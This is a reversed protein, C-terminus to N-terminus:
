QSEKKLQRAKLQRVKVFSLLKKSIASALLGWLYGVLGGAFVDSPYHVGNYVRSYAVLTAVAYLPIKIQPIFQSTYTAFTFINSAHNSYFSYHGAESRKNVTIEANLKLNFEPRNRAFASKVKAGIFDNIGMALILILFFSFGERKHKKIFLFAVLPIIIIKFYTMKHLDTIWFFFRDLVSHTLVSNIQFFITYDLNILFNLM